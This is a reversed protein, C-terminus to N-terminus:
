VSQGLVNIKGATALRNSVFAIDRVFVANNSQLGNPEATLARSFPDYYRRAFGNKRLTEEIWPTTTEIELLRLTPKALTALAGRLLPEEYGEVDIKAMVPEASGVLDDLAEQRVTRSEVGDGTVVKNTADFGISFSVHGHAPGLACEHITVLSQLANAAVNRALSRATDPDPEFAWTQARCVGSALVTYSGVNAGIDLFLDGERLFHLPLMMDAFEHLGVYINGTAGVMGRRVILRQGSVWPISVETKIRSVIQWWGVRGWAKLPARRTLPNTLIMRNLFVVSQLSRM